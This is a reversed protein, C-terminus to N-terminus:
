IQEWRPLWSYGAKVSTQLLNFFFFFFRECLFILSISDPPHESHLILCLRGFMPSAISFGFLVILLTNLIFSRGFTPSGISFGFLASLRISVLKGATLYKLFINQKKLLEFESNAYDM